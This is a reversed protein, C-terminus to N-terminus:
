RGHGVGMAVVVKEPLGELAVPPTVAVDVEDIRERRFERVGRHPRGEDVLGVIAQLMCGEDGGPHDGIGSDDTARQPLLEAHLEEGLPAAGHRAAMAELDIQEEIGRFVREVPSRLLALPTRHARVERGREVIRVPEVTHRREETGCVEPVRERHPGLLLHTEQDVCEPQLRPHAHEVDPAARSAMRERQRAPAEVDDADVVAGLEDAQGPIGGRGFLERDFELFRVHAVQSV